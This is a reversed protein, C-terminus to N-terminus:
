HSFLRLDTTSMIDDKSFVALVEDGTPDISTGETRRKLLARREVVDFPGWARDNEAETTRQRRYNIVLLAVADLDRPRLVEPPEWAPTDLLLWAGATLLAVVGAAVVWALAILWALPLPATHRRALGATGAAALSSSSPHAAARHDHAGM